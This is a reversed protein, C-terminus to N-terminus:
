VDVTGLKEIIDRTAKPPLPVVKAGFAKDKKQCVENYGEEDEDRHRALASQVSAYSSNIGLSSLAKQCQGPGVHSGKADKMM